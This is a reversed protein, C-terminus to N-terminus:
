PPASADPRSPSDGGMGIQEDEDSSAAGGRGTAVPESGHRGDRASGDVAANPDDANPPALRYLSLLTLGISLTLALEIALILAGAWGTPYALFGGEALLAGTGVALFVALGLALGAHWLRPPEFGPLAVGALRLSVGAAALVAGAQFAGGPRTAGAWLLYGATLLMLPVLAGIVARLLPNDLGMRDPSDPQAEHLALAVVVALLLVAIELLTDYSRFNLLVATIPHEVGSAGLTGAVAAPLDVAPVPRELLAVALAFAFTTCAAAALAVRIM